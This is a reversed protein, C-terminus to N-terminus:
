STRMDVDYYILLYEVQVARRFSGSSGSAHLAIANNGYWVPGGSDGDASSYTAKVGYQQCNCTNSWWTYDTDSITGTRHGSAQGLTNVPMSGYLESAQLYGTIQICGWPVSCVAVDNSGQSDPLQVVMGDRGIDFYADDDIESGFSSSGYGNHYWNTSGSWGCHGATLIQTDSGDKVMFGLTCPPGSTSGKKIAIGGMMPDVCDDPFDDCASDTGPETYIFTYSVGTIQSSLRSALGQSSNRDEVSISSDLEIVLRNNEIDIGMAHLGGYGIDSDALDSWLQDRVAILDKKSNAVVHFQVTTGSPASAQFDAKVAAGASDSTYYVHFVGNGTHEMRAGGFGDGGHARNLAAMMSEGLAMRADLKAREDASLLFGTEFMGSRAKSDDLLSNLSATDFGLDARGSTLSALTAFELVEERSPGSDGEDSDEYVTGAITAGFTFLGVAVGVWIYWKRKKVTM